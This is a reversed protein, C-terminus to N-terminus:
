GTKEKAVLIESSLIPDQLGLQRSSQPKGVRFPDRQRFNLLSPAAFCESFDSRNRLGPWSAAGTAGHCLIGDCGSLGLCLLRLARHGQLSHLHLDQLSPRLARRKRLFLHEAALASRNSLLSLGLRQGRLSAAGADTAERHRRRTLLFFLSRVFITLM